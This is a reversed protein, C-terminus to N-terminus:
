AAEVTTGNKSCFKKQFGMQCEDNQRAFVVDVPVDAGACIGPRDPATRHLSVVLSQDDEKQRYCAPCDGDDSNSYQLPFSSITQWSYGTNDALVSGKSRQKVLLAQCTKGRDQHRKPEVNRSGHYHDSQVPDQGGFIQHAVWVIQEKMKEIM